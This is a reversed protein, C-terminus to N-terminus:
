LEIRFEEYDDFLTYNISSYYNVIVRSFVINKIKKESINKSYYKIKIKSEEGPEILLQADSLEHTYAFYKVNNKDELYMSDIEKLPDLLIQGNTTNKISFTYIEYDMYMEKSLVKIEIGYIFKRSENIEEKGIFSNINLKYEDNELKEVTVYDQKNNEETYKGVSMIDDVITIRYMDDKWKEIEINKKEGNFIKDFYSVKFIEVSPYMLEKCDETLLDYADEYKRSNCNDFFQNILNIKRKHVDDSKVSGEGIISTTSNLYLDTKNSDNIESINNLGIQEKQNKKSAFYNLIQILIIISAIIIIAKWFKKRNQNYIRIINM